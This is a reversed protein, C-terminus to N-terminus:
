SAAHAILRRKLWPSSEVLRWGLERAGVLPRLLGPLPLPLPSGEDFLRQLGDTTLRMTAVAERRAREYRRLLLLDGPDRFPERAAVADVLAQVDGFGLNMGQGSLPHVVHAADGILAARPAITREV